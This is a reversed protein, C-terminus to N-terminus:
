AVWRDADRGAGNNVPLAHAADCVTIQGGRALFEAVMRASEEATPPPGAVAFRKRNIWVTRTRREQERMASGPAAARPAKPTSPAPTSLATSM